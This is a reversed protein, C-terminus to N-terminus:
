QLGEFLPRLKNHCIKSGKLFFFFFDFKSIAVLKCELVLGRESVGSHHARKVLCLDYRSSSRREREAGLLELSDMNQKRGDQERWVVGITCM